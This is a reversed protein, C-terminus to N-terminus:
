IEIFETCFEAFRIVRARVFGSPTVVPLIAHFYDDNSVIIDVYPLASILHFKDVMSNWDPEETTRWSHEAIAAEISLSPFQEVRASDLFDNQTERSVVIGAPTRTPLFSEILRRDGELRIATTVRGESVAKRLNRLADANAHHSQILPQMSEPHNIWGEVFQRSTRDVAPHVPLDNIAAILDIRRVIAATAEIPVGCFRFFSEHVETKELDRRERLWGPNLSDIFDALQGASAINRTRSAEVWHWASVIPTFTGAVIAGTLKSQFSANSRGKLGSNILANQDLYISPM